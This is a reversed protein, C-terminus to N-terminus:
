AGKWAWSQLDSPRATVEEAVLQHNEAVLIQYAAWPAGEGDVEVLTEAFTPVAVGAAASAVAVAVSASAAFSDEVVIEFAVAVAVVVVVVAVAVVVNTLAAAAAAAAVVVAVAVAAVAVVRVELPHVELWNHPGPPPTHHPRCHWRHTTM